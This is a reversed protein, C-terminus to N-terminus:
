NYRVLRLYRKPQCKEEFYGERIEAGGVGAGWRAGQKQHARQEGRRRSQSWVGKKQPRTGRRAKTLYEREGLVVAIKETGKSVKVRAEGGWRIKWFFQRSNFPGGVPGYDPAEEGNWRGLRSGQHHPPPNAVFEEGEILGSDVGVSYNRKHGGVKKEGLGVKLL